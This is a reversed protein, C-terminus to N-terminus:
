RAAIGDDAAQRLTVEVNDDGPVGRRLERVFAAAGEAMPIVGIGRAAFRRKLAPTVMGGDWPGWNIARVLTRAGRRRSEVHAVKNLIENAMAYDAQGHNGHRAAISSFLCILRLDDDRTAALLNRLGTVKPRMVSLFQADTKDAIRRDALVGAGHIIGDIRGWRRRARAIAAGTAAPDTVDAAEYIADFGALNGPLTPTNSRGLLLLRPQILAAALAGVCAATIGRAGGTAVLVPRAPLGALWDDGARGPAGAVDLPVVRGGDAALGIEAPGESLLEAALRGAVAEVSQGARAIDITRVNLAPFEHAATRALAAFGAFWAREECRGSVGFDGGSDQVVILWGGAARSAFARVAAFSDLAAAEVAAPGGANDLGGLLVLL